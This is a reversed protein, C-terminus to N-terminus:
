CAVNLVKYSSAPIHLHETVVSRNNSKWHGQASINSQCGGGKSALSLGGGLDGRRSADRQMVDSRGLCRICGALESVLRGVSLCIGFLRVDGEPMVNLLDLFQRIIKILLGRAPYGM